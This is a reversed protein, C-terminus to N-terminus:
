MGNHRTLLERLEQNDRNLRKVDQEVLALRESLQACVVALNKFEEIIEPGISAPPPPPPPMRPQAASGGSSWQPSAASGGSSWQPSAGSSASPTGPIPIPPLAPTNLTGPGSAARGATRANQMAAELAATRTASRAPASALPAIPPTAAIAPAVPAAMPPGLNPMGFTSPPQMPPPPPTHPPPTGFSPARAAPEDAPPPPPPGKPSGATGSTSRGKAVSPAQAASAGAKISNFVSVTMFRLTELVGDGRSAIAPIAKVLRDNLTADLEAEPILRPLDRKNYQLVMPITNYDIGNAQLNVKLDRLSERNEDMMHDQSDAVFVIGDTGRLVLKRTESYYVQGPVTFLRVMFKMGNITGLNLPLLDFYITRDTETAVSLLESRTEPRMKAHVQQLNTTKGCRGPGYYVIKAVLEKAKYNYTPM